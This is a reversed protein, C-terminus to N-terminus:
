REERRQGRQWSRWHSQLYKQMHQIVGCVFFLVHYRRLWLYYYYNWIFKSTILVKRKQICLVFHAFSRLNISTHLGFLIFTRMLYMLYHTKLILLIYDDHAFFMKSEITTDTKYLLHLLTHLEYWNEIVLHCIMTRRTCWWCDKIMAMGSFWLFIMGLYIYATTIHCCHKKVQQFEKKRNTECIYVLLALM